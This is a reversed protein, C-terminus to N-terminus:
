RRRGFVPKHPKGGQPAPEPDPEPAKRPPAPEDGPPMGPDIQVVQARLRPAAQKPAIFTVGFTEAKNWVVACEVKWGELEIHLTFQSPVLQPNDVTLRAGTESLDRVVCPLSTFGNNFAIVGGKLTRTRRSARVDNSNDDTM